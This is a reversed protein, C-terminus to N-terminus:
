PEGELCWPEPKDDPHRFKLDVTVAPAEQAHGTESCMIDTTTQCKSTHNKTEHWACHRGRLLNEINISSIPVTGGMCYGSLIYLHQVLFKKNMYHDLLAGKPLDTFSCLRVTLFSWNALIGKSLM